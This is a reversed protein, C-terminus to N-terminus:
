VVEKIASELATATGSTPRAARYHVLVPLPSEIPSWGPVSVTGSLTDQSGWSARVQPNAVDHICIMDM